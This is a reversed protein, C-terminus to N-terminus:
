RGLSGSSLRESEFDYSMPIVVPISQTNVLRYSYSSSSTEVRVSPFYDSSWYNRSFIIPHDNMNAM